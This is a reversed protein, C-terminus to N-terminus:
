SENSINDESLSLRISNVNNSEREKGEKELFGKSYGKGYIKRAIISALTLIRKIREAIPLTEEYQSAEDYIETLKSLEDFVMLRFTKKDIESIISKKSMLDLKREIKQPELSYFKIKILEIKPDGEKNENLVTEVQEKDIFKWWHQNSSKYTTELIGYDKELARLIMKPDYSYGLQSLKDVVDKYSFDGLEPKNNEYSCDLAAQLIIRGKDGFKLLFELTRDSVNGTVM